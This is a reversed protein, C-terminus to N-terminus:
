INVRTPMTNNVKRLDKKYFENNEKGDWDDDTTKTKNTTMKTILAPQM